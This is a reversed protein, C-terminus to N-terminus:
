DHDLEKLQNKMSHFLATRHKWANINADPCLQRFAAVLAAYEVYKKHQLKLYRERNLTRWKTQLERKREPNAAQWKQQREREREPHLMRREQAAMRSRERAHELNAVWWNRNKQRYYEPNALYRKRAHERGRKRVLERNADAWQRKRRNISEKNTASWRRQTERIAEKNALRWSRAYEKERRAYETDTIRKHRQRAVERITLYKRNAARWIRGQQYRHEQSCFNSCALQANSNPTFEKKCIICYHIKHKIPHAKRYRAANKKVKEINTKAWRKAYQRRHEDRCEKSCLLDKNRYPVFNKKCIICHKNAM